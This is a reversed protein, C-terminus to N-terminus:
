IKHCTADSLECTQQLKVLLSLVRVTCDKQRNGRLRWSDSMPLRDDDRAFRAFDWHGTDDLQDWLWEAANVLLPAASIFGSLLELANIFRLSEISPFDLPLQRLSRNNILYIGRTHNILHNILNQETPYPLRDRLLMLTYKSLGLSIWNESSYGFTEEIAELYRNSNFDSGGFGAEIVKQWQDTTKQLAPHMPDLQSLCAAAALEVQAPWVTSSVPRDFRRFSEGLQYVLYNITRLIAPHSYDLGYSLAKILASETPTEGAPNFRTRSAMAPWSGDALQKECLNIVLCSQMAAAKARALDPHSDPFQMVDRLLRFRPIADLPRALLRLALNVVRDPMRNLGILQWL